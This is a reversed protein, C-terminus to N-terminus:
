DGPFHVALFLPSNSLITPLLTSCVKFSNLEKANSLKVSKLFATQLVFGCTFSTRFGWRNAIVVQTMERKSQMFLHFSNLM